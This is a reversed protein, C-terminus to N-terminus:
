NNADQLYALQYRRYCNSLNIADLHSHDDGPSLPFLSLLTNRRLISFQFIFSSLLISDTLANSVVAVFHRSIRICSCFLSFM